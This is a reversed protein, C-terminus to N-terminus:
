ISNKQFQNILGRLIAVENDLFHLRKEADGSIFMRVLSVADIGHRGAIFRVVEDDGLTQIIKNEMNFIVKKEIHLILQTTFSLSVLM